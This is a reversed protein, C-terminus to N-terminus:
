VKPTQRWVKRKANVKGHTEDILGIDNVYLM